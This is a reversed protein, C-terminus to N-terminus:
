EGTGRTRVRKKSTGKLGTAFRSSPGAGKGGVGRIKLGFQPRFPRFFNKQLGPEGRIEPDPHGEGGGGRLQLDRDAM